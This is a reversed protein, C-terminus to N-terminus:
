KKKKLVNLVSVLSLAIFGSIFGSNCGGGSSKGYHYNNNIDVNNDSTDNDNNVDDSVNNDNNNNADNNNDTNADDTAGYDNNQPADEFFVTVELYNNEVQANDPKYNYKIYAPKEALLLIEPEDSNREFKINSNDTSIVSINIVRSIEAKRSSFLNSIDFEYPYGTKRSNSVRQKYIKQSLGSFAKMSPNNAFSIDPLSNNDCSFVELATLKSLDIENLKNSSLNLTKISIGRRLFYSDDIRNKSCDIYELSNPVNDMIDISNSSCSLYVLTNSRPLSFDKYINNNDCILQELQKCSGADLTNIRNNNCKVYRLKKNDLEFVVIRNNDCELWRLNEADNAFFRGRIKNHDCKLWLLNEDFDILSLSTLENHDCKLYVLHNPEGSVMVDVSIMVDGSLRMDLSKVDEVEYLKLEDIENNSCDLYMLKKHIDLSLAELQNNNCFLAQLKTAHDLSLVEIQNDNCFLAQLESNKSLDLKELQNKQCSFTELNVFYEIGKFDSIEEPFLSNSQTVTIKGYNDSTISYTFGVPIVKVAQAENDDLVNNKNTDFNNQVYTRFTGDPFHSRDINVPEAYVGNPFLAYFLVSLFLFIALKKM